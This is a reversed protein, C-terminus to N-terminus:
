REVEISKIHSLRFCLNEITYMKPKQVIFGNGIGMGIALVGERTTNDFFVVKVKKGMFSELLERTLKRKCIKMKWEGNPNGSIVKLLAITASKKDQMGFECFHM